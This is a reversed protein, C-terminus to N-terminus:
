GIALTKLWVSWTNVIWIVAITGEVKASLLMIVENFTLTLINIEGEVIMSVSKVTSVDVIKELSSKVHEWVAFIREGANRKDSNKLGPEMVAYIRVGANRKDSSKLGPM